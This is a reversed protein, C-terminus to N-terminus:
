RIANWRDLQQQAIELLRQRGFSPEHGAHVTTVPLSMLRLTTEIYDAIKSHHLNDLLPGDYIADGSFFM